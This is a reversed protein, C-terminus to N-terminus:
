DTNDHLVGVLYSLWGVAFGLGFIALVASVIEIVFRTWSKTM